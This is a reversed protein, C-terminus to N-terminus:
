RYMRDDNIEKNKITIYCIKSTLIIILSFIIFIISYIFKLDKLYTIDSKMMYLLQIEYYIKRNGNTPKNKIFDKETEDEQEWDSQITLDANEKRKGNEISCIM